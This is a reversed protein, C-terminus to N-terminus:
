VTAPKHGIRLGGALNELAACFGGDQGMGGRSEGDAETAVSQAAESGRGEYNAVRVMRLFRMARKEEGAARM